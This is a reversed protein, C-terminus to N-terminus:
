ANDMKAKRRSERVANRRHILQCEDCRVRNHGRNKIAIEKGCDICCKIEQEVPTYYSKEAACNSCYKKKANKSARTLIGCDHCRIFGGRLYNMYEYGLERFDTVLLIKDSNEDIYTVRFNLNDNRLPMEILGTNYLQSMKMLRDTMSGTTRALAFVDKLPLSVWGNNNSNKINLLKALCLATFALREIVTNGIKSITDLEGRTIWVGDIEYLQYKGANSAIRDIKENWYAKSACYVTSHNEMFRTLEEVIKKKRYGLHHYFYKALLSVTFYPNKDISKLKLCQEAYELENLIIQM